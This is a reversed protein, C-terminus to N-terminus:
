KDHKTGSQRSLTAMLPEALNQLSELTFTSNAPMSLPPPPLFLPDVHKGDRGILKKEEWASFNSTQALPLSLLNLALKHAKWPLTLIVPFLKRKEPRDRALKGLLLRFSFNTAAWRSFSAAVKM